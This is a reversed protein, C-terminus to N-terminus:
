AGQRVKFRRIMEALARLPATLRWSTSGLIADNKILAADRAAALTDREIALARCEADLIDREIALADRTPKDAACTATSPEVLADGFSRLIERLVHQMADPRSLVDTWRALEDARQRDSWDSRAANPFHLSVPWPLVKTRCWPERVFKMWMTQDTPYGDPTTAWGENLRRYADLRHAGFALGFGDSAWAGLRNPTWTLWPERFQPQVPDFVYGRIRGDPSVDAHMSGAFDAEELAAELDQLHGPLWLDDDCQYCVIRGRAERLVTDRHSEGNRPAKPLDFFRIRPDGEQLRTVATRLADDVGDGVILIEIENIGQSQVSKVAFPLTAAHEHTPILVSARLM